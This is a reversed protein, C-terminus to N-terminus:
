NQLFRIRKFLVYTTGLLIGFSLTFIWALLHDFPSYIINWIDKFLREPQQIISWSNWRLFRGIYIGFGVLFPVTWVILQTTRKSLKSLLLAEMDRLSLYYFLLGSLAFAGILFLDLGITTETSFRLHMYDTLIYPANPLFLLWLGFWLLLANRKIKEKSRLFFSIGFPIWALFVNWVLFLFFFSHTIRLRIMLLVLSAFLFIGVTFIIEFRNFFYKKIQEM